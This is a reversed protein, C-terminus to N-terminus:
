TSLEAANLTSLSHGEGLGMWSYLGSGPHGPRPVVDAFVGMEWNPGAAM